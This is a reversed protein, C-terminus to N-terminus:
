RAGGVVQAHNLATVLAVGGITNGLLVPLMFQTLYQTFTAQGAAVLYMTEVSGAIIHSLGGIGILYSTFVITWFRSAESAPLLWVMLAVLWGGAVGKIVDDLFSHRIAEQGILAFAARADPPFLNTKAAATAFILTGLLNTALVIGWLRLMKRFRAWTKEHLVPLVATLTTETFLQQRGLTVFLFGVTYGLKAVLPTWPAEPLKARLLGEAALSFGMTLGAALGAWALAPGPRELDEIGELLITEHVLLPSPLRRGRAEEHLEQGTEDPPAAM